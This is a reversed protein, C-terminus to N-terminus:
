KRLVPSDQSLFLFSLHRVQGMAESQVRSDEFAKEDQSRQTQNLPFSKLTQSAVDFGFRTRQIFLYHRARIQGGRSKGRGVPSVSSQSKITTAELHPSSSIGTQTIVTAATWGALRLLAGCPARASSVACGCCESESCTCIKSPM